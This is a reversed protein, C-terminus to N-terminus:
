ASSPMRSKQRDRPSPSTYLLCSYIQSHKSVERNATEDLSSGLGSDRDDSHIEIGAECKEGDNEPKSAHDLIDLHQQQQLEEKEDMQLVKLTPIKDCASPYRELPNGQYIILSIYVILLM